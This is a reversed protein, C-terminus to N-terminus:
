WPLGMSISSNFHHFSPSEAFRFSPFLSWPLISVCIYLNFSVKLREYQYLGLIFKEEPHATRRSSAPVDTPNKEKVPFHSDFYFHLSYVNVSVSCLFTGVTFHSSHSIHNHFFPLSKPGPTALLEALLCTPNLATMQCLRMVLVLVLVWQWEYSVWNDRVHNGRTTVRGAATKAAMSHCVEKRSLPYQPSQVEM